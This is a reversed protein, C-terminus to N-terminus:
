SQKNLYESPTLGSNKVEESILDFYQKGVVPEVAQESTPTFLLRVSVVGTPSTQVIEYSGDANKTVKIVTREMVTSFSPRSVEKLVDIATQRELGTVGVADIFREVWRDSRARVTAEARKTDYALEGNELSMIRSMMPIACLEGTGAGDVPGVGFDDSILNPGLLLVMTSADPNANDLWEGPKAPNSIDQYWSLAGAVRVSRQKTPLSSTAADASVDTLTYDAECDAGDPNTGYKVYGDITTVPGQSNNFGGSVTFAGQPLLASVAANNVGNEAAKKETPAPNQPGCATLMAASLLSVVIITKKM